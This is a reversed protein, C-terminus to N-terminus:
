RERVARPNAVDRHERPDEDGVFTGALALNNGGPGLPVSVRVNMGPKAGQASLVRGQLTSRVCTVFGDSVSSTGQDLRTSAIRLSGEQGETELVVFSQGGPQNEPRGATTPCRGLEAKLATLAAIVQRRLTLRGLPSFAPEPM